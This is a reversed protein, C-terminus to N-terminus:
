RIILVPCKAEESVKRSVSGLTGIKSMGTLGKSGIVILEIKNSKSFKLISNTARGIVAEVEVEVGYKKYEDIQRQLKTKNFFKNSTMIDRKIKNLKKNIVDHLFGPPVDSAIEFVTLIYVKSQFAKAIELAEILAKKAYQSGDYPVLIRDYKKMVSHAGILMGQLKTISSDIKGLDHLFNGYSGYKANKELAKVANKIHSLQNQIEGTESNKTISM